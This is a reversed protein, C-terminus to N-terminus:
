FSNALRQQTRKMYYYNCRKEGINSRGRRSRKLREAPVQVSRADAEMASSTMESQKRGRSRGISRNADTTEPTRGKAASAGAVVIAEASQRAGIPRREVVGARPLLVARGPYPVHGESWIGAAYVGARDPHGNPKLVTAKKGM